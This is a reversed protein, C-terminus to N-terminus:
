SSSSSEGMTQNQDESNSEVAKLLDALHHYVEFSYQLMIQAIFCDTQHKTQQKHASKTVNCAPCRYIPKSMDAGSGDAQHEYGYLVWEMSEIGKIVMGAWEIVKHMSQQPSGPGTRPGTIKLPQPEPKPMTDAAYSYPQKNEQKPRKSVKSKVNVPPSLVPAIDTFAPNFKFDPCVHVCFSNKQHNKSVDEIRYKIDGFGDENIQQSCEPSIKLLNTNGVANGNGYMLKCRLPIRQSPLAVSGDKDVMQLKLSIAKDRGGQDKYWLGDDDIGTMEAIVLKFKVVKLPNSVVMRIDDAVAGNRLASVVVTFDRNQHDKSTDKICLKLTACMNAGFQSSSSPLIELLSASGIIPATGRAGGAHTEETVYMLDVHLTVDNTPAGHKRAEPVDLFVNLDFPHGVFLHTSPMPSIRLRMDNGDYKPRKDDSQAFAAARKSM